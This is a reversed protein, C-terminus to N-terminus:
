GFSPNQAAVMRSERDQSPDFTVHQNGAARPRKPQGQPQQLFPVPSSRRRAHARTPRATEPNTHDVTLDREISLRLVVAAGPRRRRGAAAPPQPVGAPHVVRAAPQNPPQAGAPVGSVDPGSLVRGHHPRAKVPM